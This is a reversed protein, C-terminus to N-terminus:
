SGFHRGGMNSDDGRPKVVATVWIGEGDSSLRREWLYSPEKGEPYGLTFLVRWLPTPLGYKSLFTSRRRSISSALQHHPVRGGTSKRVTLRPHAM